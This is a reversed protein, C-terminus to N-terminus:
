RGKNAWRAQARNLLDALDAASMEWGGGLSGEVGTLAKAAQRAQAQAQYNAAFDFGVHKSISKASPKYPRFGRVDEWKWHGSRFISRWTIGDPALRITDPRIFRWAFLPIGLGFFGMVLYAIAASQKPDKLMLAGIAVFGASVLLLLAATTRSSQIVIPPFDLSGQM